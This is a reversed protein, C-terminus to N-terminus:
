RLFYQGKSCRCNVIKLMFIGIKLWIFRNNGILIGRHIKLEWLHIFNRIMWFILIMSWSKCVAWCHKFMIIVFYGLFYEMRSPFYYFLKIYFYNTCLLHEFTMKISYCGEFWGNNDDKDIYVFYIAWCKM